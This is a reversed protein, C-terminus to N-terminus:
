LNKAYEIYTFESLAWSFCTAVFISTESEHWVWKGVYYKFPSDKDYFYVVLM